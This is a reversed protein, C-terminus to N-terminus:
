DKTIYGSGFNLVFKNPAINNNGIIGVIQYGSHKNITKVIIDIDKGNFENGLRTKGLYIDCNSLDYNLMTVGGYGVVGAGDSETTRVGYKKAQQIDIISISAGTDLLFYARNGNLTGQVIPIFKYDIMKAVVGDQLSEEKCQTVTLTMLGVLMLLKFIKM